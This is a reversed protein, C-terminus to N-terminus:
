HDLRLFGEGSELELFPLSLFHNTWLFYFRKLVNQSWSISEVFLISSIDARLVTKCSAFPRYQVFHYLLAVLASNLIM